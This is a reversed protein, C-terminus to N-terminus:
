IRKAVLSISKKLVQIITNWLQKLERMVAQIIHEDVGNFFYIETNCTRITCTPNTSPLAPLEPATSFTNQNEHHFTVLVITLKKKPM